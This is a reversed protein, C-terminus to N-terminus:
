NLRMRFRLQFSTSSGGAGAMTGSPVVRFHTVAADYGDADPSPVYAYSAGGNNSFSPSDTTSALSTFSYTLGSSPSGDTFAVPGSGAGGLNGVFLKLGNPVADGAVVTNADPSGAASNSVVVVYDAVAGPIFKPGTSGNVPDSVPSSTKAVSIAPLVAPKIPVAILGWADKRDLLWSMDTSATGPKTSAAGWLGAGGTGNKQAWFPSQGSGATLTTVDGNTVLGAFIVENPASAVTVSALMADGLADVITGFTATQHVNAFSATGAVLRRSKTLNVVVQATGVPPALRVWFEIDGDGGKGRAAHLLTLPQGAYQVSAVSSDNEAVAVSVILLRNVGSGVTHAFSVSSSNATAVSPTDAVIQASAVQPLALWSLCWLLLTLWVLRALRSHGSPMAARKGFIRATAAM